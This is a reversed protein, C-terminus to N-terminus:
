KEGNFKLENWKMEVKISDIHACDFTHTRTWKANKKENMKHEGKFPKECSFRKM